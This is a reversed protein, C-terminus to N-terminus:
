RLLGEMDSVRKRLTKECEFEREATHVQAESLRFLLIRSGSTLRIVYTNSDPDHYSEFAKVSSGESQIIRNAWHEIDPLAPEGLHETIM